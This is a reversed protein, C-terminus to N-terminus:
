GFRAEVADVKAANCIPCTALSVGCSKCAYLHECPLLLMCSAGSNCVRCILIAQTTEVPTRGMGSAQNRSGAAELENSSAHSNTEQMASRLFILWQNIEYAEVAIQRWEDRNQMTTTLVDQMKQLEIHLGAIEDNKQMLMDNTVSEVLNQLTANQSAMQRQLSVRVQENHVQLLRDLRLRHQELSIWFPSLNTHPQCNTHSGLVQYTPSVSSLINAQQGSPQDAHVSHTNVNDM